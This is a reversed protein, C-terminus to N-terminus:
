PSCVVLCHEAEVMHKKFMATEGPHEPGLVRSVLDDTWLKLRWEIIPLLSTVSTSLTPYMKAKETSLIVLVPWKKRILFNLLCIGLLVFM